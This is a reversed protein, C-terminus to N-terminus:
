QCEPSTAGSGQLLSRQPCATEDGTDRWLAKGMLPWGLAARYLLGIVFVGAVGTALTIDPVRIKARALLWFAADFLFLVPLFWLWSQSFVGNSFHFYTSWHEQPLQRPYLFINVIGALDNTAPDDVLWIPAFFGSSEYVIGSHILVVLFVMAIRLNDLFCIRSRDATEPESTPLTSVDLNQGAVGQTMVLRGTKFSPENAM